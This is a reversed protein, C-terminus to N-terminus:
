MRMSQDTRLAEVGPIRIMAVIGPTEMQRLGDRAIKATSPIKGRPDGTVLGKCIIFTGSCPQVKFQELPTELLVVQIVPHVVELMLIGVLVMSVWGCSGAVFIRCMSLQVVMAM